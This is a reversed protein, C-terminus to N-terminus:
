STLENELRTAEEENKAKLSVKVHPKSADTPDPLCLNVIRGNRAVGTILRKEVSASAEFRSKKTYYLILLVAVCIVALPIIKLMVGFWLGVMENLFSVIPIVFVTLLSGQISMGSLRVTESDVSVSAGVCFGYKRVWLQDFKIKHEM